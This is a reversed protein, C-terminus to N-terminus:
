PELSVGLAEATADDLYAWWYSSGNVKRAVPATENFYLSDVVSKNLTVPLEQSVLRGIDVVSQLGITAASQSAYKESTYTRGELRDLFSPGDASPWYWGSGAAADFAEVGFVDTANMTVLRQVAGYTNLPLLPDEIGEVDVVASAPYVRSFNVNYDASRANVSINAEFYIRRSDLPTVNLYYVEAEVALGYARGKEELRRTWNTMSNNNADGGMVESPEGMFTGNLALERIRLAADDAPVGSGVVHSVCAIVSSRGSVLLARPFDQQISEAYNALEKGVVNTVLSRSEVGAYDVYFLALMVIPVLIALTIISYM